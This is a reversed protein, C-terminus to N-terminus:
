RPPRYVYLDNTFVFGKALMFRHESLELQGSVELAPESGSSTCLTVNYMSVGREALRKLVRLLKEARV